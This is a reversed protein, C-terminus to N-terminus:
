GGERLSDFYQRTQDREDRPLLQDDLPDGEESMSTEIVNKIAERTIGKRNPGDAFGAIVARGRKVDGQVKTDYTNTDGDESANDGPGPGEGKGPRKDNGAGQNMCQECGQGNCNQCNMQNKSQALDDLASQLDQLESMASQMDGLEESMAQMADAAAESDGQQMAEAANEMAEAMSQMQQMQAEAAQADNLKEQLKAADESRGERKAQEIQQKLQQKKQEHQEVAANMQQALQKAQGALKEKEQDSLQGDKLKEALRRMEEAAKGFDGRQIQDAIKEAPGGDIGKMQALADRLQEPSGIRDKRAEVQEKIDNLQILADKRDLSKNDTIKDLQREMNEFMEMAEKLGKAESTRRQESVRKKLESAVAKVQRVEATDVTAVVSEAPTTVPQVFGIVVVLIPVISLPLWVARSARLPFRDAIRLSEARKAADERLAAVFSRSGPGEDSTALSSSLRERLGFRHDVEAAVEALSPTRWWAYVGAALVALVLSGVLWATIWQTPTFASSGDTRATFGIAATIEPLPVIAMAAIALTSVLLAAFLTLNLARGFRGLILRRRAIRVKTLVVSNLETSM